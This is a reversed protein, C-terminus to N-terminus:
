SMDVLSTSGVELDFFCLLHGPLRDSVLDHSPFRAVAAPKQGFLQIDATYSLCSLECCLPHRIQAVECGLAALM